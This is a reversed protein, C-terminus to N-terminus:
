RIKTCLNITFTLVADDTYNSQYNFRRCPLHSTYIRPSLRYPNVNTRIDTGFIGWKASASGILMNVMASLVIIGLILVIGNQHELLKAGKVAAIIGLNSWKLYALLQAAFFVIVIFTGMSGVADGFMKGLDKTNKIEKSLIGYVLGPVLFVVLIILGVGNILPADDSYAAQKLM